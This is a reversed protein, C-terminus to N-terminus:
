KQLFTYFMNVKIIKYGNKQYKRITKYDNKDLKIIDM